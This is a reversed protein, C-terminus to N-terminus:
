CSACSRWSEAPETDSRPRVTEKEKKREAEDFLDGQLVRQMYCDTRKM